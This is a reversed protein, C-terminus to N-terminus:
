RPNVLLLFADREAATEPTDMEVVLRVMAVAKARSELELSISQGVQLPIVFDIRELMRRSVGGDVFAPATTSTLTRRLYEEDFTWVRHVRLRAIGDIRIRRVIGIRQFVLQFSHIQGPEVSLTDGYFSQRKM